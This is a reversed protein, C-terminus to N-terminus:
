DMRLGVDGDECLRKKRAEREGGKGTVRHNGGSKTM